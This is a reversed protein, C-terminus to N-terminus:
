FFFREDLLRSFVAIVISFVREADDDDDDDDDNERREKITTTTARNWLLPRTKDLLLNRSNQSRRRYLRYHHCKERVFSFSSFARDQQRHAGFRGCNMGAEINFLNRVVVVHIRFVPSCHCRIGVCFFAFGSAANSSFIPRPISM